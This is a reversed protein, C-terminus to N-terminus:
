KRIKLQLNYEASSSQTPFLLLSSTLIDLICICYHTLVIYFLFTFPDLTLAYRSYRIDYRQHGHILWLSFPVICLVM